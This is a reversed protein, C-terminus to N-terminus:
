STATVPQANCEPTPPDVDTKWWGGESIDQNDPPGDGYPGRGWLANTRSFGDVSEQQIEEAFTNNGLSWVTYPFVYHVWPFQSDQASGVIQKTWFEFAVAPESDSCDLAGPYALGVTDSGDEITAAGLLFAELVPELGSRVLAFEFWNFIDFARFRALSCGCGNRASFNQGTDKNVNLGVNVVKDSVYSNDGAIVNGLADVRTVRIACVGFSVGCNVSM